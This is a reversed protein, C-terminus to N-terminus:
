KKRAAAIVINMTCAFNGNQDTHEMARVFRQQEDASLVGLQSMEAVIKDIWLYTYADQLRTLVFPFVQLSVGEFGAETFYQILRQAAYGNNIKTETLFAGLKRSTEIEANYFRLSSWDSEVIVVPAGSTVVRNIEAFVADPSKLHQVLREARLGNVTADSFPLRDGEAIIFELNAGDPANKRAIDILSADHDVGVTKFDAGFMAAMNHVDMGTGCGLDVVTGSKVSGFFGYSRLKIDKLIQATDSLYEANYHKESM